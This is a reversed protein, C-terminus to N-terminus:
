FKIIKYYILSRETCLHPLSLVTCDDECFIAKLSLGPFLRVLVSCISDNWCLGFFSYLATCSVGVVISKETREGGMWGSCNRQKGHRSALSTYILVAFVGYTRRVQIERTDNISKFRSKTSSWGSSGSIRWCYMFSRTRTLSMGFFSSFSPMFILYPHM